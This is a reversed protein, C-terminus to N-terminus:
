QKYLLGERAMKIDLLQAFHCRIVRGQRLLYAGATPQLHLFTRSCFSKKLIDAGQFHHIVLFFSFFFGGRVGPLQAPWCAWHTHTRTVWWSNGVTRGLACRLAFGPLPPPAAPAMSPCETAHQHTQLDSATLPGGM